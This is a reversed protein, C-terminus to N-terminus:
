ERRGELSGPLFLDWVATDACASFRAALRSMFTMAAFLMQHCFGMLDRGRIFVPVRRVIILSSLDDTFLFYRDM